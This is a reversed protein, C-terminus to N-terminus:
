IAEITRQADILLLSLRELEALLVGKSILIGLHQLKQCIVLSLAGSAQKIREARALNIEREEFTMATDIRESSDRGGRSSGDSNFRTPLLMNGVLIDILGSPTIKMVVGKTYRVGIPVGFGGFFQGVFVNDGAVLKTLDRQM